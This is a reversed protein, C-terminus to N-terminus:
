GRRNSVQGNQQRVTKPMGKTFPCSQLLHAVPRPLHVAVSPLALPFPPILCLCM